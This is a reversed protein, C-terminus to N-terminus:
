RTTTVRGTLGEVFIRYRSSSGTRLVDVSGDSATGRPTFTVDASTAGDSGVFSANALTVNSGRVAGRDVQLASAGSCAYRYVRWAGAATDFTVCYRIEEALARQATFRLTSSVDDASASQASAATYRGFTWVATAMLISGLALTTMVEILTIGGDASRRVSPRGARRPSM